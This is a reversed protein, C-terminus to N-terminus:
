WVIDDKSSKLYPNYGVIRDLSTNQALLSWWPPYVDDVEVFHISNAPYIDRPAIIEMSNSLYAAWWSFSSHAVIIVDCHMMTRMAV